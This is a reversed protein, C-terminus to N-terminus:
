PGLTVNFEIVMTMTSGPGSDGSIWDILGNAAKGVTDKYWDQYGIVPPRTASEFSQASYATYRWVVSGDANKRIPTMRIQQSGLFAYAFNGTYGTLFGDAPQTAGIDRLWKLGQFGGLSYDYMYTHGLTYDGSQVRGAFYDLTKSTWPHERYLKTFGDDPGFCQSRDGGGTLWSWGLEFPNNGNGSPIPKGFPTLCSEAGVPLEGKDDGVPVTANDIAKQIAERVAAQAVLIYAQTAAQAAAVADKGAELAQKRAITASIAADTAYRAAIEASRVARTAAKRAVSSAKVAAAAANSATQASNAAEAASREAA